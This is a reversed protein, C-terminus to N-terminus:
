AHMHDFVYRNAHMWGEKSGCDFRKGEFLYGKLPVGNKQTARIADTLQLEGGAGPQLTSLAHFIAPPLIYRGIVAYTSPAQTPHPKEVIDKAFIIQGEETDVDLIGYSSTQDLPVKLTAVMIDKNKESTYSSLMQDLCPSSHAYIYDDPLIVCFAEDKQLWPLACAVAHGLGLPQQQYTFIAQGQPLTCQQIAHLAGNKGKSQLQEELLINKDFHDAISPKSPSTVFIFRTIGCAQAEEVAHQILPRDDVIMMEKPIAKTAPLFRTGLGAVPFVATTIM